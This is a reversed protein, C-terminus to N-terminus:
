KRGPEVWVAAAVRAWTPTPNQRLTRNGWQSWATWCNRTKERTPTQRERSHTVMEQIQIARTRTPTAKVRSLIEMRSPSEKEWRFQTRHPSGWAVM